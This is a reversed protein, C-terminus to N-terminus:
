LLTIIYTKLRVVPMLMLFVENPMHDMDPDAQVSGELILMIIAYFFAILYQGISFSMRLLVLNKKVLFSLM